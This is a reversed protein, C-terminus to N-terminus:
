IWKVLPFDMRHPLEPHIPYIRFSYDYVGPKNIIVEANFTVKGKECKVPYMKEVFLIESVVDLHKQAFLIEVGIENPNIENLKLTVSSKFKSGFVLPKKTPDPVEINVVEISDWAKIMRMKWAAISFALEFNNAILKKNRNYLKYYLKQYYEDIMRVTTFKPVILSITNKIYEIWKRPLGEKDYQFFTPIIENEFLFFLTEADLEDQFDQNQYTCEEKLAWGANEVYGEAWWGDLVSVNIVGNLIAKQGSTGSAELPRTPTNLWVDVGQVLKKALDMEYNELFLIKGVFEPLHSIEYIKKILDQGAKDAPHAKGAFIFVVPTSPNNVLRRLRDIDKFLLYARKYTAFRRAFGVTLSKENLKELLELVFKPSEQRLELNEMLRRRIYNYLDQKLKLRANWIEKDPVEKIKEWTSFDTQKEEFDKPLYKKYIEYIPKGVWTRFHVGNTVYSIHLEQPFYKKWIPNFMKRTVKEHIKSVANVEQSLKCALISMSFKENPDLPDEKGLSIFDNWSIKFIEPYHSLYTRILDESFVDHGAPVPTHTTFLTSSRVVELAEFYNLHRQEILKRLRELGIFASHGENSHYVDPNIKLADLLRIGGIGLLIEQKLRMENDGGYLQHTIARDEPSNEEIDTDLLYLSVKGIKVEWAKAYVIRGPFSISIMIWEGRENRVPLLPLHSFKLPIKLEIQEGNVSLSQTFYGYRYLLGIGTINKGSDSAQKLYDGALIGLGGSYNKFTEHLGFEMCFYAIHPHPEVPSSMYEKFKKIVTNYKNIFEDNNILKEYQELTLSELLIIPNCNLKRFLNSDILEFLEIAEFNWSWWLNQSLSKLEKIKEPIESQIYIKRWQPVLNDKKEEIDIINIQKHKYKDYRKDAKQIAIDFAQFYNKILSDWLFQKILEDFKKYNYQKNYTNVFYVLTEYLKEACLIDNNEERKIIFVIDETNFNNNLLWLGFGTLNTTITPIKFMISELPTYGWPEYYSPFVTLDFGILLDYYNLNFIGDTGNLYCPVFIVKVRDERKNLLEREKLRNIIPDTEQNRLKHTLYREETPCLFNSNYINELVNFDPGAHDAPVLIFAYIDKQINRKNLLALADIFVDYGKNHFEYRGSTAIFISEEKVKVNTIAEAVAILKNRAKVKKAFYEEDSPILSNDFGNPTIVDAKRHLFYECELNTIDSVVTFCDTNNTTNYELSFKSIINFNSACSFPEYESIKSHLPLNNGAISRGLTTAHTTFVTAVQPVYKKLYLVGMGTLWEHFHAVIKDQSTVFYDYFSHIVKGAAYGFLAPEIYDWQGHLSDVKFSEWFEFFIKDKQPFFQTFDILIVIPNGDINWYGIRCKLGESFLKKRWSSFLFNDEVFEKSENTNKWVDPGILIYKEGFYNKLTRLKSSIVTYIGGVKNCVEWSIEFLYTPIKFNEM